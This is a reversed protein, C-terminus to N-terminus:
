ESISSISLLSFLSLTTIPSKLIYKSCNLLCLEVSSKILLVKEWLKTGTIILGVLTVCVEAVSNIVYICIIDSTSRM